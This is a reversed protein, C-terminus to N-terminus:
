LHLLAAPRVGVGLLAHQRRPLVVLVGVVADLPVETGDLRPTAITTVSRARSAPQASDVCPLGLGPPSGSEVPIEEVGEVEDAPVVVDSGSPPSPRAAISGHPIRSWDSRPAM